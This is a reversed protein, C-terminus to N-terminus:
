ISGLYRNDWRPLPGKLLRTLGDKRPSVSGFHQHRYRDYCWITPVPGKTSQKLGTSQPVPADNRIGYIWMGEGRMVACGNLSDLNWVWEVGRVPIMNRVDRGLV